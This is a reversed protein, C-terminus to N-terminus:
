RGHLINTIGNRLKDRAENIRAMDDHSGGVDPHLEKALTRYGSDIVELMADRQAMRKAAREATDRTMAEFDPEPGPEPEPEPVYEAGIHHAIRNLEEGYVFLNQMLAQAGEESIDPKSEIWANLRGVLDGLDRSFTNVQDSPPSDDKAPEAKSSIEELKKAKARARERSKRRHDEIAADPDDARAWRMLQEAYKRSKIYGTFMQEYWAWWDTEGAEGSEIRRRLELLMLGAQLQQEACKNM